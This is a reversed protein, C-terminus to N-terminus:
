GWLEPRPPHVGAADFILADERDEALLLPGDLDTVMAGQAVLVAPAMALSSGIMCGVMIGYGQARAAERLALAETLGGTKDLKINVVDYKGKLKPLSARDHCSEDACVPVPRAMGILAEDDGAPLPQEVLAVGLRVLHPALDAYVAASWGENADVIIKAQPAGRRVAELRPMDDPTGLKIKLLPRHAHKAAQAQMTEPTDLSLTYATIEPVPAPLGALEWVRRGARKAELDWIACDLANRAAGAPLLDYLAARTLDGSLGEIQATVSELTEDYRAYPVCEGWGTVGGDTVRVTLVKAETRSGRSITFVQALRFVDRTVDIQM